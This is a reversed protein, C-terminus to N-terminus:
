ICNLTKTRSNILTASFATSDHHPTPPRIGLTAQVTLGPERRRIPYSTASFATSDHHPTPPRIGLTAQVTLGPERRRIPYSTASRISLNLTRTGAPAENKTKGKESKAKRKESKTKRKKGVEKLKTYLLTHGDDTIQKPKM